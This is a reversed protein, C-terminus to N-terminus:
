PEIWHSFLKRWGTAPRPLGELIWIDNDADSISYSLRKGDPHVRLSRINGRATEQLAVARLVRGEAVDVTLLKWEEGERKFTYFRDGRPSFDGDLVGDMLARDGTGDASCVRVGEKGRYAILGAASARTFTYVGAQGVRASMGVPSGQGASDVKALERKGTVGRQYFIWRGDPSWAPAIANEGAPTIPVPQGGGAPLTWIQGSQSFAVRRGDRSFTPSSRTELVSITSVPNGFTLQVRSGKLDRLFVESRGTSREVYVYQDGSPAYQADSAQMRTLRLPRVTGSEIAAEMIGNQSTGSHYAMRSGDPSVSLGGIFQETRLLVRASRTETDRLVVEKISALSRTYVFHRSDPLWDLIATSGVTDLVRSRGSPFAVLVLDGGSSASVISAVIQRGDRSFRLRFPQGETPNFGALPKPDTGPPSSVVLESKGDPRTRGFVLAHSDPSIAAASVRPGNNIGKMIIQPAGGSAATVSLDGGDTYYVRAGDPSWGIPECAVACEAVPVPSQSSLSRVLVRFSGRGNSVVYAISKGDPSFLPFIENEAEFALPTASMNGITGDPTDLLARFLAGSGIATLLIAAAVSKWGLVKRVASAALPGEASTLPISELEWIVDRISQWRRDPDKELARSILRSLAPPTIPALNEVPEPHEKLIAAVLSAPNDARFACKGTLVEYLILGFSFIDSREDAEQGQVQEPSMYQLTGLIEGKGTLAMTMTQGDAAVASQVKALGFDLLKVGTKTVLINAPKLDRHIIGKRHAADLPDAVQIALRVAEALPLPGHLPKGEVYEMVLYDAGVDHLTCIGPHNLAAIARAEREFREGFEGKAFKIAVVRDLRTDRAKWVEGMGGAGIASIAEYPGIRAGATVSM